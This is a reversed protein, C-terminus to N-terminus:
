PVFRVCFFSTPPPGRRRPLSSPEVMNWAKAPSVPVPKGSWCSSCEHLEGVLHAKKFLAGDLFADASANWFGLTMPQWGAEFIPTGASASEKRRTVMSRAGGQHNVRQDPESACLDTRHVHPRFVLCGHFGRLVSYKGDCDGAQAEQVHRRGTVHLSGASHTPVLPCLAHWDYTLKRLLLICNACATVM